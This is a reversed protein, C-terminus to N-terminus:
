SVDGNAVTTSNRDNSRLRMPGESAISFRPNPHFATDVLRSVSAQFFEGVDVILHAIEGLDPPCRLTLSRQDPM